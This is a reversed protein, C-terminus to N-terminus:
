FLVTFNLWGATIKTNFIGARGINLGLGIAAPQKLLPSRRFLHMYNIYFSNRVFNQGKEPGAQFLIGQNTFFTPNYGAEFVEMKERYQVLVFIDTINGPQIRADIPLIPYWSRDFFHVFRAQVVGDLSRELKKIFGYSFEAGAGLGFFRSGVLNTQAESLSVSQQTPIGGIGYAVIQTRDGVLFNKGISIVIDDLGAGSIKFTNTGSSKVTQNELGTSFEGWWYNTFMVHANFVAGLSLSREYSDQNLSPVVIHRDRLYFIPLGTLLIETKPDKLLLASTNFARRIKMNYMLTLAYADYSQALLAAMGSLFYKKRIMMKMFDATGRNCLVKKNKHM